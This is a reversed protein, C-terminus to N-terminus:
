EHVKCSMESVELRLVATKELLRQEFEWQKQGGYHEMLVSLGEKKEAIESLVSIRGTGIVSSFRFSYDCAREGSALYHDTDLEFGAKGTKRILDLKRGQGAGHFYFVPIGNERRYGFNLPVIYVEGGDAFGLRCCDASRIIGDIRDQDTVERDRRRM